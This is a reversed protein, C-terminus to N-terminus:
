TTSCFGPVDHAHSSLFLILALCTQELLENRLPVRIQTNEPRKCSRWISAPRFTTKTIALIHSANMLPIPLWSIIGNTAM